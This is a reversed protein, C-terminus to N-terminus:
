KQAYKYKKKKVFVIKYSTSGSATKPLSWIQCYFLYFSEFQYFFVRSNCIRVVQMKINNFLIKFYFEFDFFM